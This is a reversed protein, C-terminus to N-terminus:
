KESEFKAGCKENPCVEWKIEMLTGCESCEYNFRDSLPVGAQKKLLRIGEAAAKLLLSSVYGFLGAAIAGVAGGSDKGENFILALIGIVASIIGLAFVDYAANDLKEELGTDWPGEIKVLKVTKTGPPRPPPVFLITEMACHPCTTKNNEKSLTAPDFQIHGNCHQCPCTAVIPTNMAHQKAPCLWGNVVSRNM